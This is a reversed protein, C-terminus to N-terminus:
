LFAGTSSRAGKGTFISFTKLVGKKYFVEPPQKQIKCGDTMIYEHFTLNPNETSRNTCGVAACNPMKLIFRLYKKLYRAEVSSM